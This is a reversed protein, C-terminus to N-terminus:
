TCQEVFADYEARTLHMTRVVDEAAGIVRPALLRLCTGAEVILKWSAAYIALEIPNM